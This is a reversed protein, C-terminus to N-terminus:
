SQRTGDVARRSVGGAMEADRAALSGEGPLAKPGIKRVLTTADVADPCAQESVVVGGLVASWGVVRVSGTGGAVPASEPAPRSTAIRRGARSVGLWSGAARGAVPQHEASIGGAGGAGERAPRIAVFVPGGATDFGMESVEVLAGGAASGPRCPGADSWCSLRPASLRCPGSGAPQKGTM